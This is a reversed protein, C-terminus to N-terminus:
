YKFYGEEKIIYEMHHMSHFPETVIRWIYYKPWAEEMITDDLLYILLLPWRFFGLM